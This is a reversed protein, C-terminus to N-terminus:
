GAMCLAIEGMYKADLVAKELASANAYGHAARVQDRCYGYGNGAAAGDAALLCLAAITVRTRLM